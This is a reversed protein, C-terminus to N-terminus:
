RGIRGRSALGPMGFLMAMLLCLTALVVIAAALLQLLVAASGDLRAIAGARMIWTASATLAFLALAGALVMPHRRVPRRMALLIRNPRNM